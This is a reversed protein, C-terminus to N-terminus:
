TGILEYLRACERDIVSKAAGVRLLELLTGLKQISPLPLAELEFASVAVSGSICRFLEDVVKSNLIAAVVVEPVKPKGNARVMNLHNEVVVGGHEEIFEAPLEAAILRRAQEKATTRQVLVCPQSVLLWADGDEIKFCPAHNRKRARYTFQGDSTVAEAWILPYVSKGALRDRMQGKYRNWVLPGTSVSYGWDRLRDTMSEAHAILPGHAATRPAMWPTAPDAPLAVTGNRQLKADTDNVVTLYHIQSREPRAGLRYVALLTEQLVDEFVGRRAHVFDIAVPPAEAALLKRLASFYQGGLFSTPTLYAVIGHPKAWRLAIDTFVGYLNAHGYLSRAYRERFEARLTVRGYPPNGIVLDFVPEPRRDLSDCITVLSPVPRRSAAALDGLAITLATQAIAAAHPDLELGSLRSGIQGLLFAPECGHMARRMRHVAEIMFAGGGAAPDLIRATKFDLGQAEAQDFLRRVLVPPTYFAGLDGRVKEDLLVPYLSTLLYLADDLPLAAAAHGISDGLQESFRDLQAAGRARPLAIGAPLVRAALADLARQTLAASHAARCEAPVTHIWARAMARARALEEHRQRALIPAEAFQPATPLDNKSIRIKPNDGM